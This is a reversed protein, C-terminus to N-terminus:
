RFFRGFFIFLYAIIAKGSPVIHRGELYNIMNANILVSADEIHIHKDLNVMFMSNIEHATLSTFLFSFKQETEKM